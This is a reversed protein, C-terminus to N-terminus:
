RAVSSEEADLAILHGPRGSAGQNRYYRGEDRLEAAQLNLLGTMEEAEIDLMENSAGPLLRGVQFWKGPITNFTPVVSVLRVVSGCCQSFRGGSISFIAM